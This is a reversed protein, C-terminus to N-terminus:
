ARGQRCSIELIQRQTARCGHNPTQENQSKLAAVEFVQALWEEPMDDEPIFSDDDMFHM